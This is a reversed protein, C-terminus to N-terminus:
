HYMEQNECVQRIKGGMERRIHLFHKMPYELFPFSRFVLAIIEEKIWLYRHFAFVFIMRM